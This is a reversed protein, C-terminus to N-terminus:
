EVNDFAKQFDLFLVIGPIQMEDTYDIVDTILRVNQGIFRGKVYATQNENILYPLLPKLRNALVHAFIKFDTNLLSIPRWNDLLQNDGKKYLLKM